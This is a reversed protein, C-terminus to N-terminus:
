LAGLNGWFVIQGKNKLNRVYVLCQEPYQTEGVLGGHNSFQSIVNNVPLESNLVALM